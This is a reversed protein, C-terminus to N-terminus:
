CVEGNLNGISVYCRLEDLVFLDPIPGGGRGMQRMRHCSCLQVRITALFVMIFKSCSKVFHRFFKCTLRHESNEFGRIFGAANYTQSLSHQICLDVVFLCRSVKCFGHQSRTWVLGRVPKPRTLRCVYMCVLAYERHNQSFDKKKLNSSEFAGYVSEFHVAANAFHGDAHRNIQSPSFSNGRRVTCNQYVNGKPRQFCFM